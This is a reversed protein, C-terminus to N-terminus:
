ATVRGSEALLDISLARDYRAAEEADNTAVILIGRHKQEDIIGNVIAIGESDLNSSPEDLLLIDPSHLLAFAYKARQKMGSSYTRVPDDKRASLGVRQILAELHQDSTKLGRITRFLRLNEMATFEDYLQLYPAVMGIHRFRDSAPITRGDVEVDVEGATLSLVGAIIKVLTSKGSGNRGTIALSEPGVLTVDINEFITRRNFVKKVGSLRLCVTSM